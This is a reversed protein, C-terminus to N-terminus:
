ADGFSRPLATGRAPARALHLQVVWLPGGLLGSCGGLPATRAQHHSLDTPAARPQAAQHRVLLHYGFHAPFPQVPGNLLRYLKRALLAPRPWRRCKATNEPLQQDRVRVHPRRKESGASTRPRWSCAKRNMSPSPGHVQVPDLSVRFARSGSALTSAATPEKSAM